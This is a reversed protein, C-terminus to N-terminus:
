GAFHAVPKWQDDFFFYLTYHSATTDYPVVFHAGGGIRYVFAQAAPGTSPAPFQRALATLGARCTTADRVWAISARPVNLGRQGWYSTDPQGLMGAIRDQYRRAAVSDGRCPEPVATLARVGPVPEAGSARCGLVVSLAWLLPAAATGRHLM